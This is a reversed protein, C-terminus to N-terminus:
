NGNVALRLVSELRDTVTEPDFHTKAVSRSPEPDILDGRKKADAMSTIAAAMTEPRDDILRISRGCIYDGTGNSAGVIAPIGCALAEAVSSGFNEEDSPQALLDHQCMLDPIDERPVNRIWNVRDSFEFDQIMQDYGRIFGIDGVITARVDAGNEIALKLGSLFLDLRKRPIIRGLWLVRLSSNRERKLSQPSFLQLDIPYPLAATKSKPVTYQNQLTTRSQESGVIVVDSHEFRPRGLWSLRLKALAMWKIATLTGDFHKIEQFRSVISRADTGPPGQAFSVMRPGRIRMPVFEGLWLVVDYKKLRNEDTILRQLLRDYSMCDFRVAFFGFLPIRQTKRRLRDEFVNDTEIFRFGKREGVAPRPDVFSSKSYFDVEHGSDLLGRLLIANASAVSGAQESVFGSAAIRM